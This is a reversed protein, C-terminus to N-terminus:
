SSRFEPALDLDVRGALHELMAEPKRAATLGVQVLQSANGIGSCANAKGDAFKISRPPKTSASKARDKRVPGSRINGSSKSHTSRLGQDPATPGYHRIADQLQAVVEAVEEARLAEARRQLAAIQASLSALTPGTKKTPM